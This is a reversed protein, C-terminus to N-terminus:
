SDQGSKSAAASDVEMQSTSAEDEEAAIEDAEIMANVIREARRYDVGRLKQVLAEDTGTMSAILAHRQGVGGRKDFALYDAAVTYDRFTLEDITKTGFVLPVKLKLKM